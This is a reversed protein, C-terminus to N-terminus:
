GSPRSFSNEYEKRTKIVKAPVGVAVSYAPIDKNVVAGAGVISGTGIRVGDLIAVNAGIWVSDEIIIGRGIMDQSFSLNGLKKYDHEFAILITHAAIHVDSGISIGGYGYLISYDTVASFDGIKIEGGDAKLLAYPYVTTYKGIMIKANKGNAYIRSHRELVAGEALSITGAGRLESLPSVYVNAGCSKLRRPICTLRKLFLKLRNLDTTTITKDM